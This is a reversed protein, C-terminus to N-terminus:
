EIVQDARPLLSQPITLGLATATKVNVIFEYKDPQEVPDDGPRASKLGEKRAEVYEPDAGGM